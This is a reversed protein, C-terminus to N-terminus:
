GDGAPEALAALFLSLSLAGPDVHGLARDGLPRAKGAKALMAKTAEAGQAAGEAAAQLAEAAGGAGEAAAIAPMVADIMTKDGPAAGGRAQVAEVGARLAEALAPATAEAGALPKAASMFFTGFVAGSAGGSTTLIAMGLHRFLDGVAEAPKEELAQRGARFGRAMALGHDGDGVARDAETLREEAAIIADCGALLRAKMEAVGIGAM